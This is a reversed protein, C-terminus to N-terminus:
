RLSCASFNGPQTSAKCPCAAGHLQVSRAFALVSQITLRGSILFERRWGRLCFYCSVEFKEARLQAPLM